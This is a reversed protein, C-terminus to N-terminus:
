NDLGYKAVNGAGWNYSALAHDLSNFRKYDNELKKRAGERAQDWNYPDTVGYDKATAPTFQYPGMAGKNSNQFKPDNYNSEAYAVADLLSDTIPSDNTTGTAPIFDPSTDM